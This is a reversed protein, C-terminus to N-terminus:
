RNGITRHGDRPERYTGPERAVQVVCLLDGKRVVSPRETNSVLLTHLRM